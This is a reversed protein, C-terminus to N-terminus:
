QFSVICKLQNQAKNELYWKLEELGIKHSVIYSLNLSGSELLSLAKSHTFPNVFSTYINVDKKFLEFPNVEVFLNPPAVSFLLVKGGREVKDFALEISKKNGACEIVIDYTEEKNLEEPKYVKAGQKTAVDFRFNDVEVGSISKFGFSKLLELMILGIPGLGIILAKEYPKPEIKEIGHLSCALPEVLAAEEFSINEFKYAQKEPVICYEAFGGNLNVGLAKLNECLHIQGKQCFKCVGCNINPDIAVKDGEKFYSSKSKVVVGAYEHGLIIPPTVEASGKEGNYIHVDTGCIGCSMVKILVEGDNLDRVSVDEIRIEKKGYFVAAKM